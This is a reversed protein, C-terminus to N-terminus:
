RSSSAARICEIDSSQFLCRLSCSEPVFFSVSAPALPLPMAAGGSCCGCCCNCCCCGCGCCGRPSGVGVVDEFASLSESESMSTSEVGCFGTSELAGRFSLPKPSDLFLPGAALSLPYSALRGLGAYIHWSKLCSSRLESWLIKEEAYRREYLGSQVIIEDNRRRVKTQPSTKKAVCGKEKEKCM